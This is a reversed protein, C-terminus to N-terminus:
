DKKNRKKLAESIKKKTEESHHKGYFNNEIGCKNKQTESMRKKTIPNNCNEKYTCWRLNEVRNDTRDGNIHDVCPKNEPNPIFTEAVLKHIDKPEYTNNRCLNVRLYGNKMLSNKLIKISTKWRGSKLSKVRGENSIQYLEEYGKINKFYEM